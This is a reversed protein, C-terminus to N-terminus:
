YASALNEQVVSMLENSAASAIANADTGQINQTVNVNTTNTSNDTNVDGNMAYAPTAGSTASEIEPSNSFADVIDNVAASGSNWANIANGVEANIFSGLGSGNNVLEGDEYTYYNMKATMELQNDASRFLNIFWKVGNIVDVVLNYVAILANYFVLAGSIAADWLNSFASKGGDLYTILDDVLLIIITIIATVFATKSKIMAFLATAIIIVAQISQPLNTIANYVGEIVRAAAQIIKIVDKILKIGEKVLQALFEGVRKSVPRVVSQIYEVVENIMKTLIEIPGSVYQQWYYYIWQLVYKGALQLKQFATVLGDLVRIGSAGEPLQMANGLKVLEDYRKKLNKDKNIEQMTKGMVKLAILHARAAETTKNLSKAEKELTDNMEITYKIAQKLKNALKVVMAIVSTWGLLSKALSKTLNKVDLDFKNVSGQASKLGSVDSKFKLLYEKLVSGEAM